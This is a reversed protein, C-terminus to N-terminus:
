RGKLAAFAAIAAGGLLLGAGGGGTPRAHVQFPTGGQPGQSPPVPEAEGLDAGSTIRMVPHKWSDEKVGSARLRAAFPPDIADVDELRVKFRLDRTLLVERAHKCRERLEQGFTDFGTGIPASTDDFAGYRPLGQVPDPRV